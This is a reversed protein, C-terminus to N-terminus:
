KASNHRVTLVWKDGESRDMISMKPKYEYGNAGNGVKRRVKPPLKIINNNCRYCFITGQLQVNCPIM